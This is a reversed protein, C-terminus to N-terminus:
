HCPLFSYFGLNVDLDTIEQVSFLGDEFHLQAAKIADEKTDFIQVIKKDRMLVFKGKGYQIILSPLQTKFIDYNEKVQVEKNPQQAAM